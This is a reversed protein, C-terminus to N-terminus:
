NPLPVFSGSSIHCPTAPMQRAMALARVVVIQLEACCETSQRRLLNQKNDSIGKAAVQQCPTSHVMSKRRTVQFKMNSKVSKADDVYPTSEGVEGRKDENTKAKLIAEKCVLEHQLAKVKEKNFHLETAMHTNSQALKWNQLQVKQAGLKLKRMEIGNAEIIKNDVDNKKKKLTAYIDFEERARTEGVRCKGQRPSGRLRSQPPPPSPPPIQPTPSLILHRFVEEECHQRIRVLSRLIDAKM